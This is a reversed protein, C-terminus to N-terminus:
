SDFDLLTQLAHYGIRSRYGVDITLGAPKVVAAVRDLRHRLVAERFNSLGVGVLRFRTHTPLEVRDRLMLAIEVLEQESRPSLPPTHSRTLIHFNSTKLKLVVTRGIRQTKRTAAWTKTALSRIMPAIAYRHHSM